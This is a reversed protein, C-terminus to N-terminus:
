GEKEKLPSSLISFSRSESVMFRKCCSILWLPFRAETKLLVNLFSISLPKLSIFSFSFFDLWCLYGEYVVMVSSHVHVSLNALLIHLNSKCKLLFVLACTTQIFLSLAIRHNITLKKQDSHFTPEQQSNLVLLSTKIHQDDWNKTYTHTLSLSLLWGTILNTIPHSNQTTCLLNSVHSTKVFM